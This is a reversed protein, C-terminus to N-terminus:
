VQKIAFIEIGPRFNLTKVSFNLLIITKLILTTSKLRIKKM